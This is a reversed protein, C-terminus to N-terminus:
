LSRVVVENGSDEFYVLEKTGNPHIKVAYEPYAPDATYIARGAMLHSLAAKNTVESSGMVVQEFKM